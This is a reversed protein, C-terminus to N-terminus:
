LAFNRDLELSLKQEKDIYKFAQSVGCQHFINMLKTLDGTQICYNYAFVKRWSVISYKDEMKLKKCVASFHQHISFKNFNNKYVSEFLPEKYKSNNSYEEKIVEITKIDKIPLQKGM